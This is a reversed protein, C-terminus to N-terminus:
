QVGRRARARRRGPRVERAAGDPRQRAARAGGGVRDPGTGGPGRCRRARAAVATSGGCSSSRASSNSVAEASRAGEAGQRDARLGAWRRGQRDRPGSRAHVNAPRGRDGGRRDRHHHRQRPLQGRRAKGRVAPHGLVGSRVRARLPAAIGREPRGLVLAVRVRRHPRLRRDAQRRPHRRDDLRRERRDPRHAAARAPAAEPDADPDRRGAGSHGHARLRDAREDEKRGFIGGHTDPSYDIIDRLLKAVAMPGGTLRAVIRKELAQKEKAGLGGLIDQFEKAKEVAFADLALRVEHDGLLEDVTEYDWRVSADAAPQKLKDDPVPLPFMREVPFVGRGRRRLDAVVADPTKRRRGSTYAAGVEEMSRRVAATIANFTQTEAVVPRQKADLVVKGQKDRKFLRSDGALRIAKGGVTAMVGRDSDFDHIALGVVGGFSLPPLKNLQQEVQTKSGAPRLDVFGLNGHRWKSKYMAFDPIKPFLEKAMQEALFLQFNTYFLPVREDWHVRASHQETRVHGASFADTLFHAGFAETAMAADIPLGDRGSQVALRVAAEHNQQYSGGANVPVLEEKGTRPDRRRKRKGHRAKVSLAIDGQDINLFHTTNDAALAYYREKVAQKATDDWPLALKPQFKARVEENVAYVIEGRHARAPARSGPSTWSRRSRASCIAVSPSSTAM